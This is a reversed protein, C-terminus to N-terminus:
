EDIKIRHCDLFCNLMKLSVHGILTLRMNNERPFGTSKKDSVIELVMIGFSFVDSITLFLVSFTYEPAM